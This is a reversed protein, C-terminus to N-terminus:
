KHKRYYDHVLQRATEDAEIKQLALLAEITSEAGSNLNIKDKSNIGDFCRGTNPDYLAKGSINKGLLWAAADAAQQAYIERGTIKHAKLCASVIPRIGYAIQEFQKSEALVISDQMSKLKFFNIYDANMFYPYFYNIEKLAAATYQGKGLLEGAELLADSQSNGYAHWMNKWSLFAGYPFIDANGNQMHIIGESLMQIMKLATSDSTIKFYPILAKILVAAQDSAFKVPLWSPLDFGEFNVMIQYNEEIFSIVKLTKSINNKIKDAYAPEKREYFQLAEAMAWLARWTWWDARAESNVHTKNISFDKNIFNYFLGNEAQMNMTFDLLKRAKYLSAADKTVKYNRLYFVAARAIDDICAIGEGPAEVPKYDPYEAYIHIIGAPQNKFIIEQYLHDLHKTNVLTFDRGNEKICSSTIVFLFAAIFVKTM